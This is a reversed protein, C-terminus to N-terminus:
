DGSAHEGGKLKEAETVLEALLAWMKWILPWLEKVQQFPNLMSTQELDYKLDELKERMLPM